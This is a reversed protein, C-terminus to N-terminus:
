FTFAAGLTLLKGQVSVWPAWTSSPVLYRYLDMVAPVVLFIGVQWPPVELARAMSNVDSQSPGVGAFGTIAYGLSLVVDFMLVGKLFAHRRSRLRPSILLILESNVNQVNFGASAIVYLERRALNCCPQIAFFPIPGLHTEVFNVKKDLMVDTVVHGLEHGVFSTAAGLLFWAYDAGHRFDAEPEIREEAVATRVLCLAILVVARRM